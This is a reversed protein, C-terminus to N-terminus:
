CDDFETVSVGCINTSMHIYIYYIYVELYYVTSYNDHSAAPCRGAPGNYGDVSDQQALWCSVCWSVSYGITPAALTLKPQFSPGNINAETFWLGALFLFVVVASGVVEIVSIYTMFFMKPSAPQHERRAVSWQHYKTNCILPICHPLRMIFLSISAFM